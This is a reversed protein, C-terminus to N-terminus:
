ARPARVRETPRSPTGGPRATAKRARWVRAMWSGVERAESPIGDSLNRMGRATALVDDEIRV